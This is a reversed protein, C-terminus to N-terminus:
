ASLELILTSLGHGDPEHAACLYGVLNVVVSAGVPNAPALATAMTLTPQSSAMGSTGVNGLAYGNDFLADVDVGAVKALTYGPTDANIFISLDEVFM